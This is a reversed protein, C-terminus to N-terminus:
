FLSIIFFFHIQQTTCQLVKNFVKFIKPSLEETPARDEDLSCAALVIATRGDEDVAKPSAGAEILLEMIACNKKQTAILLATMGWKNKAELLNELGNPLKGEPKIVDIIQHNM